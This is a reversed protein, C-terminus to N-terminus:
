RGQFTNCLLNRCELWGLVFNLLSYWPGLTGILKLCTNISLEKLFHGENRGRTVGSVVGPVCKTGRRVARTCGFDRCFTGFQATQFINLLLLAAKIFFLFQYLMGIKM